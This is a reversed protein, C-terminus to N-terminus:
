LTGTLKFFSLLHMFEMLIEGAFCSELRCDFNSLNLLSVAFVLLGISVRRDDKCVFLFAIDLPSRVAYFLNM